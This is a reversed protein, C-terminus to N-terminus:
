DPRLRGSRIAEDVPRPEWGLVSRARSSDLSADAPRPADFPLDAQRIAEIPRPDLGLLAAVRVGLEYRSLREPGGVHFLGAV